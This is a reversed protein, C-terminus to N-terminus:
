GCWLHSNQSLVLAERQLLGLNCESLHQLHGTLLTGDGHEPCRRIEVSWLLGQLSPLSEYAFAYDYIARAWVEGCTPCFYATHPWHASIPSAGRAASYGCCYVRRQGVLASGEFYRVIADGTPSQNM